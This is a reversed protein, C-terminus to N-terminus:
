AHQKELAAFLEAASSFERIGKASISMGLEKDLWAILALATLSDWNDYSDLPANPDLEDVELLEALNAYFTEKM